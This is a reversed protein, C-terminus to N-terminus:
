DVIFGLRLRVGAATYTPTGAGNVVAVYLTTTGTAAKVTMGINGKFALRVGGLDKYDATAIPVIGLINRANADTISPAANETGLTANANLLYIDFAAGQDDEDIVLISQLRGTGDNVRLASAVTQTNALLDDAAYIATDLSLTVDVYTTNGSATYAQKTVPDVLEVAITRGTYDQAYAAAGLCLAVLASLLLRYM